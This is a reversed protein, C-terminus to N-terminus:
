RSRGTLTGRRLWRRPSAHSGQLLIPPTRPGRSGDPESGSSADVVRPNTSRGSIWLPVGGAQLPKPMQHVPGGPLEVASDRWLRLCLDLSDDLLRGRESFLLGAASYEAEQWGVGVGLDVRGGSLVDLTAVVKALVVPRRLAAILIGTALRVVAPAVLWCPCCRSRSSGIGTPGTPQRGGVIGGKEPRGYDSLSEGFVVHDSVVVRDVGARDAAEATALLPEWSGPNDASFNRLLVSLQPPSTM